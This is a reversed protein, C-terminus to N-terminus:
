CSQRCRDRHCCSPCRSRRHRCHRHHCSWHHDQRCCRRRRCVMEKAAAGPPPPVPALAAACRANRRPPADLSLMRPQAVHLEALALLLPQRHLPLPQHVALVRASRTRKREQQAEHKATKKTAQCEAHKPDRSVREGVKSLRQGGVTTLQPVHPGQTFAMVSVSCRRGDGAAAGAALRHRLRLAGLVAVPVKRVVQLSL